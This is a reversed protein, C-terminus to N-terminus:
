KIRVPKNLYISTKSLSFQDRAIDSSNFRACIKEGALEFFDKSIQPTAGATLNFVGGIIDMKYYQKAVNEPAVLIYSRKGTRIDFEFDVIKGICKNESDIVTANALVRPIALFLKKPLEMSLLDYKEPLKTNVEKASAAIYINKDDVSKIAQVPIITFKAVIKELGLPGFLLISLWSAKHLLLFTDQTSTDVIINKVNGIKIGNLDFVDKRYVEAFKM